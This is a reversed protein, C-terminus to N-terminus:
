FKACLASHRLCYHCLFTHARRAVVLHAADDTATAAALLFDGPSANPKFYEVRWPAWLASLEEPNM